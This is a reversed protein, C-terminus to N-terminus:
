KRLDSNVKVEIQPRFIYSIIFYIYIICIDIGVLYVSIEFGSPLWIYMCSWSVGNWIYQPLKYICYSIIGTLILSIALILLSKKNLKRKKRAGIKIRKIVRIVLIPILIMIIIFIFTIIFCVNGITINLDSKEEIFQNGLLIDKVGIAINETYATNTNSLAVVGLKEKPELIIFSSYNPNNGGHFFRGEEGTSLFWGNAYGIYNNVFAMKNNIKHQNEIINKNFDVEKQTGLNIKAWTAMDEINMIFYGAPKNGRYMPADYIKQKLYNLKYGKAIKSEELDEKFLFTNKLGLPQLINKSIYREYPEGTTKEIILGLIDYNITAYEFREGPKTVLNKNLIKITQELSNEDNSIPIDSISKFPIGTTHNLLQQITVQVQKGNYNFNLWPIYKNVSENVDIVGEEKLKLIALATFAKSNSGIEFFTKEDIEEKKEIDKFGFGKQYIIKEDKVVAVAIGPINGKEMKEKIFKEIKESQNESIERNDTIAVARIPIITIFFIICMISFIKKFKNM